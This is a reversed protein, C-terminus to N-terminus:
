SVRQLTDEVRLAIETAQVQQWLPIPWEEGKLISQAFAQLEEKHGKNSLRSEFDYGKAGTLTLKKFDDLIGVKGDAFIEVREKPCDSSGLATYTISAVSGDSFTITAIFNDARSFYGTSRGIFEASVGAIKAGTLYTIFDYMHCAEGLNRGGGESSLTWHEAQLRGANVRYNVMMPSTSNRLADRLKEAYPSFRRNFGTMLVPVDSGERSTYFEVIEKLESSTLALPKEVFVHKGAKLAAMTMAAHTAHRTVILVADISPDGLVQSYDTTAYGADYQRAIAMSKHGTRDVIAGLDFLDSLTKLNPLHVAQSFSGAGVLAVRVRGGAGMTPKSSAAVVHEESVSPRDPYSLLVIPAKRHKDALAAYAEGVQEISYTGGILPAINLRKEAVLRLYEGMNRNETWRVYAVPYDLGREEYTRDYRGPGYSTSVLFDLEKEYIDQRNLHLGVDGVLIVRGKKRCIRFADAIADHSPTSATVIVGDAGVGETLRAVQESLCGDGPVLPVVGSIQQALLLWRSDVDLGLVRCGAARLLQATLNGLVGLGVVAFTEGLSVNARRVGQLAIAGLAVTSACMADVAEPIVVALNRPVRIVEAHYACQAGACAVRDGIAVDDIGAGVSCVIGAASYGTPRGSDLKGRVQRYTNAVGHTAVMKWVKELKEPQTVVQKWLPMGSAALGSMETGSSICSYSVRVLITGPEACPAPVEEVQVKGEQLIAQKVETDKIEEM